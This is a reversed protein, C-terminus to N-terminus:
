TEIERVKLVACWIYYNFKGWQTETSDLNQPTFNMITKYM